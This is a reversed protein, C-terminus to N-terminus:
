RSDRMQYRANAESLRKTPWRVFDDAVRKAAKGWPVCRAVSDEILEAPTRVWPRQWSRGTDVAKLLGFDTTVLFAPWALHQLQRGDIWDNRAPFRHRAETLKSMFYRLSADARVGMAPVTKGPTGAEIARRMVNEARSRPYFAIGVEREVELTNLELGVAHKAFALWQREDAELEADLEAGVSRWDSESLTGSGVRQWGATVNDRFVMNPARVDDPVSAIEALLAMGVFAVPAAPDVFGTLLEVRKKLLGYNNERVSQSWVERLGEISASLVFGRAALALLEGRTAGRIRNADLV